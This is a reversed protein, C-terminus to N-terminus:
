RSFPTPEVKDKETGDGGGSIGSSLCTGDDVQYTDVGFVALITWWILRTIQSKLICFDYQKISPATTAVFDKVYAKNLYSINKSKAVTASENTQPLYQEIM